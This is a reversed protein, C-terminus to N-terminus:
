HKNGRIEGAELKSTEKGAEYSLFWAFSLSQNLYFKNLAYITKFVFTILQNKTKRSKGSWLNVM